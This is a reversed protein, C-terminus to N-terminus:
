DWAGSLQRQGVPTAEKDQHGKGQKGGRKNSGGGSTYTGQRTHGRRTHKGRKGKHMGNKTQRLQEPTVVPGVQEKQINNSRYV